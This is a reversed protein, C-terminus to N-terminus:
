APLAVYRGATCTVRLKPIVPPTGPAGVIPEAMAPFACAVIAKVAGAELPPLPIVPKVAVHPPMEAVPETEGIVTVPSIM